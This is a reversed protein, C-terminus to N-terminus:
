STRTLSLKRWAWYVPFGALAILLGWVPSRNGDMWEGWVIAALGATTGAIFILPVWPYFPVSFPRPRPDKKRFVFVAGVAFLLAFWEVVVFYTTLKDFLRGPKAPDRLVAILLIAVVGQILLSAHPTSRKARGLFDFTLRDRALAFPVRARTLVSGHLAGLVSCMVGAGILTAGWPGFAAGMIAAPVGDPAVAMDPLAMAHFYGINAGLYLVVIALMGAVIIRTMIKEPNKVEGAVMSVAIWGDFAWIVSAAARGLAPGDISTGPVPRLHGFTGPVVFLAVVALVFLAGVKIATLVNGLATGSVTGALNVCTLVAVAGAAVFPVSALPLGAVGALLEALFTALAGITAPTAILLYIWGFVFAAADGYAGRLYAYLGGTKPLLSALEAMALAGCISVVGCGAWLGLIVRPDPVLQALTAPKRFIGSGITVGIILATGGWFGIVRRLEGQQEGAM